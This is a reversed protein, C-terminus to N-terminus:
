RAPQRSMSWISSTDDTLSVVLRGSAASWLRLEQMPRQHFHQVVFPAGVPQHSNTDLRRAWLCVHGDRGSTFYLMKGDPSWIGADQSGDEESFRIWSAEPVPLHGDIPAIMIWARNPQVRATFSVWRNDPSFHALLLSYRSHALLTTEAHSAVDLLTVRYPSGRFTLLQKGDRSWDTPRVCGDCLKEPVSGPAAVYLIRKDNEYSSYAVREGSPAIVPYRQAFPSPALKTEKGSALDHLWVSMVGSDFQSFAVRQGETPASSSERTTSAGHTLQVPPGTAKGKELDFPFSWLNGAFTKKAFVFTENSGCTGDMEDGSGATLRQIGGSIRGDASIQTSWLNRADGTLASFIIRNGDALWCAPAPLIPTNAPNGPSYSDYGPNELGAKLLADRMGNKADADGNTSITWWDLASADWLKDSAYGIVLLRRGDPSWIPHRATTLKAGVRVPTGGKSPVVWVAGNGPVTPVVSNDGIWFAVNRSDPSYKPNLGEHALLRTEGGFASIEYIGGGDRDSRFVIKGGDPSFDPMTNGAGDWTLRIPQAGTIQRVYLDRMGDRESSWAVLKGDRSIAPWDSSEGDPTLHTFQWQGPSSRSVRGGPAAVLGIILCAAAALWWLLRHGHLKPSATPPDADSTRQSNSSAATLPAATELAGMFRYGRGPITEIYRPNEASDSLARRLKNVAANLGGEFDVFTGDSWLQQRLEERSVVQGPRELLILLIRFPQGSLRIRIGNKQLEGLHPNVEFPGFKLLVPFSPQSAM